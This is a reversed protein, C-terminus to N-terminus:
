RVFVRGADEVRVSSKRRTGVGVNYVVLLHDEIILLEKESIWGVATAHPVFAVRKAPDDVTKVEVAPLEALNKRIEKSEEPNAQGQEALQITQNATATATIAMAVLDLEPSLRANATFFSVDYDANKFASLEDFVTLKKGDKRVVTQDDSENVWGCCGTDPIAEVIVDGGNAADLVRRVPEALETAAWKGGDEKYLTSAKYVGGTKGAVFQTLLFYNGVGDEPAWVVGVPCSEECAGTPCRCDPLKVSALDERAGGSLDTRWAQWTTVISLDFDERQLRRASNAFWYLHGGDQSLFVTPAFETVAQNSGTTGVERKVGLEITTSTKGNWLWAKHAAAFDEEAVPLSVPTVFLIQGERNVAVNQSAGAEAPLKVTGKVAFTTPDYEVMEGNTRLVWVRKGQGLLPIAMLAVCCVALLIRRM